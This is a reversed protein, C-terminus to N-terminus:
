LFCALLAEIEPLRCLSLLPLHIRRFFSDLFDNLFFHTSLIRIWSRHFHGLRSVERHSCHGILLSADIRLGHSAVRDFADMSLVELYQVLTKVVCFHVLNEFHEIFWAFLHSRVSGWNIQSVILFIFLSIPLNSIAGIYECVYM